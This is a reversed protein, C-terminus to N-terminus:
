HPDAAVNDISSFASLTVKVIECVQWKALLAERDKFPDVQSPGTIPIDLLSSEAESPMSRHRLANRHSAVRRLRESLSIKKRLSAQHAHQAMLDKLLQRSKVDNGRIAIIVVIYIWGAALVLLLVLLHKPLCKICRYVSTLGFGEECKGCLVGEHGQCVCVRM